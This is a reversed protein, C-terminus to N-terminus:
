RAAATHGPALVRPHPELRLTDYDEPRLQVKAECDRGGCECVFELGDGPYDFGDGIERIRDNVERLLDGRRPGKLEDGNLGSSPQPFPEM